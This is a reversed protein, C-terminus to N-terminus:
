LKRPRGEVRMSLPIFHERAPDAALEEGVSKIADALDYSEIASSRLGQVADRGDALAQEAQDLTSDFVQMAEAPRTPFLRAATQFRLLLGHFSQLLTDHLERAIRTREAVRAELGLEFQRTVQRLRLQYLMWLLGLFALVCLTRFWITQWYAPAISFDLSEGQENWVGSNNSAIVHFRYNGPGLDSYFAQRRTGVNQWERDHRDLRYRFLVKEPTVLSLATYDIRLDRVLQRLVLRGPPDYTTRDAVIQEVHVPPPLKNFPLNQPDVVTVGDPTALWLKGDVASVLHPSYSSPHSSSRVGDGNGLVTMRLKENQTKGEQTA